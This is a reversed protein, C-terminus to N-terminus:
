VETLYQRLQEENEPRTVVVLEDGPNLVTDGSPIQAGIGPNIIASILCDPPLNLDKVRKGNAAAGEAITLELIELNYNKLSLMHVLARTPLEHEIHELIVNTSSVTIDIGLKRFIQENRPNNVRAITRPVNFKKKAMQCVVLNDEDDGTVAIVMDSRATGAEALTSAECGDGRVCISGLEEAIRECKKGDQEILLIEHGKNVLSKSLYYGVKGGGVIIIYM